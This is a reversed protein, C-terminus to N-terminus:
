NPMNFSAKDFFALDLFDNSRETLRDLRPALWTAFMMM